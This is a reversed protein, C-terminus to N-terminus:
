SRVDISRIKYDQKIYHGLRANAQNKATNGLLNIDVIVPQLKGPYERIVRGILQELLPENNVPTGLILCSLPNHSIGESFIAQTGALAQVTGNGVSLMLRDRDEHTVAGTIAVAKPGILKTVEELFEVRDGVILVNHGLAMYKAAILAVSGQYNIDYLLHNVRIAWPTSTGDIFKIPLKYVHIEPIIYNEKPPKFVKTGFYDKFVVHKGDKRQITGSLGIKYRAYNTDIIKSFTPSSTHHMEDVLLTGFQRSIKDINKVLTQTNGITIPKSVDFKGSGIIGPTFGYVKETEKVWQNRLPVTHTVVLTKQGLNGAISLGSFTKGWSVSANIIANDVLEDQVAQQSARLNFKFKPFDTPALVRKDKIEYDNPILDRRGVPISILGPRIISMNRIVLPPEAESFSPISYTLEKDIREQLEPSAELYIRNSLVAKKM